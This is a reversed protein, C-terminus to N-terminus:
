RTGVATFIDNNRNRRDTWVPFIGTSTAALGNYDGIFTAFRTQSTADSVRVNATFSRGNTTSAYFTDFNINNPDLRKDQFIISVLGDPHAAIWPFFQDTSTDDDNVKTPRSWSAGGNKSASMRVDSNTCPPRGTGDPKCSGDPFDTWAVFITGDPAITATPFSNSRFGVGPVAGFNPDASKLRFRGPSPLGSAVDAPATWTAGGDTSTSFRIALPGTQSTFDAYFVFATGDPAVVPLSGSIARPAQASATIAVPSSWTMGGDRSVVVKIQGNDLAQRNHPNLFDTWSVYITGLNASGASRDVAIFEKDPFNVDPQGAAAVSFTAFTQGGDTSKAVVVDSRQAGFNIDLYAYFFDGDADAAIAPDSCFDGSNELPTAGGLNWTSGGDMTFAVRCVFDQTKPFLDHFGAVLNQNNAPNVAIAPETQSILRGAIHEDSIQINTGFSAGTASGAQSEPEGLMYQAIRGSLAEPDIRFVPSGARVAPPAFLVLVLVSVVVVASVSRLARM